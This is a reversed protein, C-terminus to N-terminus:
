DTLNNEEEETFHIPDDVTIKDIFLHTTCWYMIDDNDDYYHIEVNMPEEKSSYYEFRVHNGDEDDHFAQEIAQKAKDLSTYIGIGDEDGIVTWLTM